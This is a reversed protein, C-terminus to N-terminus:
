TLRGYRRWLPAITTQRTAVVELLVLQLRSGVYLLILGILFFVISITIAMAVIVAQAAAPVGPMNGIRGPGSLGFGGGIEAFFAVATLKLFTRWRFPGALVQRTREIAPGIAESASLPRM